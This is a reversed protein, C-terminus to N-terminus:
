ILSHHPLKKFILHGQLSTGGKKRLRRGDKEEVANRDNLLRAEKRRVELDPDLRHRM